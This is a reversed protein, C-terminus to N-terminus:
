LIHSIFLFITTEKTQSTILYFAASVEDKKKTEYLM